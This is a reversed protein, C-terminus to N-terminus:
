FSGSSPSRTTRMRERNSIGSTTKCHQGPQYTQPRLANLAGAPDGFREIQAIRPPFERDGSLFRRVLRPSCLSCSTRFPDDCHRDDPVNPHKRKLVGWIPPLPPLFRAADLCFPCGRVNVGMLTREKPCCHLRLQLHERAIAGCASCSFRRKRNGTRCSFFSTKSQRPSGARM